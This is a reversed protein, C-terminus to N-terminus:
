EGELNPSPLACGGAEHGRRAQGEALSLRQQSCATRQKLKAQATELNADKEDFHIQNQENEKCASTSLPTITFTDLTQQMAEEV